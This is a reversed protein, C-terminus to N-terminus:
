RGGRGRGSAAEEQCGAEGAQLLSLLSKQDHLMPDSYPQLAVRKGSWSHWSLVEFRLLFSEAGCRHVKQLRHGHARAQPYASTIKECIKELVSAADKEQYSKLM